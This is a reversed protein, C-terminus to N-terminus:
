QFVRNKVKDHSKVHQVLSFVSGQEKDWSRDVSPPSIILSCSEMGSGRGRVANQLGGGPAEKTCTEDMTFTAHAVGTCPVGAPM